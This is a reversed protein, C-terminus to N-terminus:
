GLGEGSADTVVTFDGNPDPVVLIPTSTLQDKLTKFASECKENWVFKKDKKQLLTIPAVV